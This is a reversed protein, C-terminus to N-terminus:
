SYFPPSVAMLRQIIHRHTHRDILTSLIIAEDDGAASNTPISCMQLAGQPQDKNPTIHQTDGSDM